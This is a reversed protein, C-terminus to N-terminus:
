GELRKSEGMITKLMTMTVRLKSIFEMSLEMGQNDLEVGDLAMMSDDTFTDFMQGLFSENEEVWKQRKIKPLLMIKEFEKSLSNAHQARAFLERKILNNRDKFDQSNQM